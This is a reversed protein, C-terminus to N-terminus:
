SSVIKKFELFDLKKGSKSLEDFFTKIGKVDFTLDHSKLTNIVSEATIYGNSAEFHRFASWIKEEKIFDLSSLSAALFETYNVM